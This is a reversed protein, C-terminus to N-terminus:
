APGTPQGQRQGGVGVGPQPIRAAVVADFANQVLNMVVQQLQGASGLVCCPDAKHWHPWPTPTAKQVWHIARDVVEVLNVPM